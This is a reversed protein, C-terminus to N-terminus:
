GNFGWSEMASQAASDVDLRADAKSTSSGRDVEVLADDNEPDTTWITWIWENEGADEIEAWFPTDPLDYEDVNFM